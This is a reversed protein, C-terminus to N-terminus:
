KPAKRLEDITKKIIDSAPRDDVGDSNIIDNIGSIKTNFKKKDEANKRVMDEQTKKIDELRKKLAEQDKLNQEIQKQNFELLAEREIGKRWQYYIGTLSGMVVVGAVIYLTVKGM